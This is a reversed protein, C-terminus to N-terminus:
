NQIGRASGPTTPHGWGPHQRWVHLELSPSYFFLFIIMKDVHMYSTLCAATSPHIPRDVQDWVGRFQGTYNRPGTRPAAAVCIVRHSHFLFSLNSKTVGECQGTYHLPGIRSAAAVCTARVQPQPLTPFLLIVM